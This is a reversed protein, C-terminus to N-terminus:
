SLDHARHDMIVGWIRFLRAVFRRLCLRANVTAAPSTVKTKVRVEVVVVVVEEEEGEEDEGFM